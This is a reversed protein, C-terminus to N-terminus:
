LVARLVCYATLKIGNNDYYTTSFRLSAFLKKNWAAGAARGGVRGVKARVIESWDDHIM